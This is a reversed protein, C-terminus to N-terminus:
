LKSCNKWIKLDRKLLSLFLCKKKLLEKLKLLHVTTSGPGTTSRNAPLNNSSKSMFEFSKLHEREIQKKKMVVSKLKRKLKLKSMLIMTMILKKLFSDTCFVQVIKTRM